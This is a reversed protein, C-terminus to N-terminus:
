NEKESDFMFPDCDFAIFITYSLLSSDALSGSGTAPREDADAHMDNFQRPLYMNLGTNM